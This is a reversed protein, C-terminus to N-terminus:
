LPSSSSLQRWEEEDMEWESYVAIGQYTKPIETCGALGASVAALGNVLNEVGPRHYGTGRDDYAPLGLLIAADTQWSLVEETWSAVLRRYLWSFPVGTDYFMVVVQDAIKSVTRYYERDWHIDMAPQWLTPPPYAAISLIRGDPLATKLERLLDTLAPNGSPWPEINLHVGAFQPWSELLSVVSRIFNRQWEPDNVFVQKGVVGGIWPVVKMGRTERLFRRAQAEDIGPLLGAPTVPALHPFIWDIGAGRLRDALERVARDSRLQKRLEDKNYRDFWDDAGLWGHQLWIGNHNRNWLRDRGTVPPVPNITILWIVVSALLLLLVPLNIKKLIGM